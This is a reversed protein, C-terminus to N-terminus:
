KSLQGRVAGDPFDANHVNVYYNQPNKIIDLIKERDLTVCDKSSGTEPAKLMVLVPGAADAAGSHIHAATATGINSVALEYCIQNKGASLTLTVHGTGDADGPGPVEAAGTLTAKLRRGSNYQETALALSVAAVFMFLVIFAGPQKM